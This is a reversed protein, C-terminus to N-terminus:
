EISRIQLGFKKQTSLASQVIGIFIYNFTISIEVTKYFKEQEFTHAVRSWISWINRGIELKDKNVTRTLCTYAKWGGWHLM